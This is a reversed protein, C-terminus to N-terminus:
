AVVGRKRLEPIRPGLGAERLVEDTHQGLLPPPRRIRGPTGKLKAPIGLGPIKGARPHDMEVVMERLRTHPDEMVDRVRMSSIRKPDGRGLARAIVRDAISGVQVGGQLVPMQSISHKEFVRAVEELTDDPAASLVPAHAVRSATVQRQETQEMARLVRVYTSLRPDIRTRHNSSEMRAILAQSVGALRALEAQTLGFRQRQERLSRLLEAHPVAAEPEKPPMIVM